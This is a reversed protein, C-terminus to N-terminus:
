SAAQLPLAQNAINRLSTALRSSGRVRLVCHVGDTGHIRAVEIDLGVRQLSTRMYTEAAAACDVPSTSADGIYESDHLRDCTLPRSSDASNACQRWSAGEPTALVDALSDLLPQEDAGRLVLCLRAGSGDPVTRTRGAALVDVRPVGGLFRLV